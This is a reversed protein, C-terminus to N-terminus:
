QPHKPAYTILMKNDTQHGVALVSHLIKFSNVYCLLVYLLFRGYLQQDHFLLLKTM